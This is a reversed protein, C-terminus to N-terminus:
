TPFCRAFALLLRPSGGVRIKRRALAWFLSREKALVGLWTEGDATLRVSAEGVHGDSVRITKDRIAVTARREERGTFTVHYVADLGGARERQFTFPMGALFGDITRPILSGRVPRPTKHPFRRAVHAEADSGPVVYVPEPKDQLPKVVGRLFGPRDTLFPGIVEEGAPCVALCYAAKYNPGYGLSQWMSVSESPSVRRRLDKGDKSDAISEVWDVFGGMYERYNHHYCASFDFHGDASIAGVPCAAVCLKCSLCPNFEIPRGYESVEADILVTGLLIFSGFRPHIVNRHIGMQGLGAAVAVPKHAVLWMSGPWREAEMPFGPPPSVARAGERELAGVIARGVEAVADTAAHFEVNAVSRAPSRVPERHMRCAFSILSKAFPYVGLIAARQDDLAPRDIEVFGVDDAGADICLQRLRAADLPRASAADSFDGNAARYREVTPHNRM